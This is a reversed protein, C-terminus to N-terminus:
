QKLEKTTHCSFDHFQEAANCRGAKFSACTACPTVVQAAAPSTPRLRDVRNQYMVALAMHHEAAALHEIFLRRAEYLLQAEIKDPNTPKFIM